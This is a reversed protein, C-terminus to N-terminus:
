GLGRMVQRDVLVLIFNVWYSLYFLFSFGMFCNLSDRCFIVKRNITSVMIVRIIQDNLRCFCVGLMALRFEAVAAAVGSREEGDGKVAVGVAVGIGLLLGGGGVAVGVRM